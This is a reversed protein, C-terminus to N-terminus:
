KRKDRRQITIIVRNIKHQVLLDFWKLVQNTLIHLPALSGTPNSGVIDLRIQKIRTM